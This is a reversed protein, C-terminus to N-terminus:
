EKRKVSAKAETEWNGRLQELPFLMIEEPQIKAVYNGSDWRGNDNKDLIVRLSYQGPQLNAVTFRSDSGDTMVVRAVETKNSNLLSVVYDTEPEM